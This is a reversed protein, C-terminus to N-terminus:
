YKLLKTKLSIEITIYNATLPFISSYLTMKIVSLNYILLTQIYLYIARVLVNLNAEELGRDTIVSTYSEKNYCYCDPIANEM